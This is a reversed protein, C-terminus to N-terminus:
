FQQIPILTLLIINPLSVRDVKHYQWLLCMGVKLRAIGFSKTGEMGGGSHGPNIILQELFFSFLLRTPLPHLSYSIELPISSIALPTELHENFVVHFKWPHDFFIIYFKGPTKTKHRLIESPHLVTKHLKQPHLLKTKDSTELTLTFLLLSLQENTKYKWFFALKISAILQDNLLCRLRGCRVGCLTM